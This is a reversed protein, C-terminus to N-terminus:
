AADACKPNNPDFRDGFADQWTYDVNFCLKYKSGGENGCAWHFDAKDTSNAVPVGGIPFFTNTAYCICAKYMACSGTAAHKCANCADAQSAFAGDPAKVANPGSPEPPAQEATSDTSALGRFTRASSPVLLSLVCVVPVIARLMALFWM